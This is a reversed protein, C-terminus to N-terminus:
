LFSVTYKTKRSTAAENGVGDTVEVEVERGSEVTCLLTWPFDTLNFNINM